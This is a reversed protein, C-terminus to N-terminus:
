SCGQPPRYGNCGRLFEQVGLYVVFGMFNGSVGDTTEPVPGSSGRVFIGSCGGRPFGRGSGSIEGSSGSLSRFSTARLDM